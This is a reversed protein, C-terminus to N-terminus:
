HNWNALFESCHLLPFLSTVLNPQGDFGTQPLNLLSQLSYNGDCIVLLHSCELLFSQAVNNIVQFFALWKCLM